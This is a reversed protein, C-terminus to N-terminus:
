SMQLTGAGIGFGIGKPGFNKGYCSKCYIDNQKECLTSSDVRKRCVNCTFCTKHWAKGGGRMLEAIFVAKDCRPCIEAGGWKPTFPKKGNYAAVHGNTKVAGANGGNTAAGNVASPKKPAVYAQARHDVENPNTTYGKGDDMSLTGSGVGFGYGKPGFNKRHCNNCFIDGGHEAIKGPDLLKRCSTCAMCLKHWSQGM